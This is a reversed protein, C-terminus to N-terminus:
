LLGKCLGNADEGGLAKAAERLLKAHNTNFLTERYSDEGKTIEVKEFVSAAVQLKFIIEANKNTM